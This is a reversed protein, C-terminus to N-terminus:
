KFYIEIDSIYWGSGFKLLTFKVEQKLQTATVMVIAQNPTKDAFIQSSSYSFSTYQWLKVLESMSSQMKEFHLRALPGSGDSESMRECMSSIDDADLNKKFQQVTSLPDESDDSAQSVAKSPILMVAMVVVFAAGRYLCNKMRRTMDFARAERSM